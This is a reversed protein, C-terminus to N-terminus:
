MLRTSQADINRYARWTCYSKIVVSSQGYVVGGFRGTKTLQEVFFVVNIVMARLERWRRMAKRAGERRDRGDDLCHVVAHGLRLTCVYLELDDLSKEGEDGVKGGNV